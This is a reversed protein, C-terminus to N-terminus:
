DRQQNENQISVVGNYFDILRLPHNPNDTKVCRPFAGTYNPSIKLSRKLEEGNSDFVSNSLMLQNGSKDSITNDACKRWYFQIPVSRDTASIFERRSIILRAMSIIKDSSYCHSKTSDPILESLGTIQWARHATQMSSENTTILHPNFFEWDCSDILLGPIIEVIDIFTQDYAVVFDFASIEHGNCDIVLDVTDLKDGPNFTLKEITVKIIANTDTKTISEIM